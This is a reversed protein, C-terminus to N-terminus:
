KQSHYSIFLFAVVFSIKDEINHLFKDDTGPSCASHNNTVFLKREVM